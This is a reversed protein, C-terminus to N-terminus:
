LVLVLITFYLFFYSLTIFHFLYKCFSKFLLLNNQIIVCLLYDKFPHFPKVSLHGVIPGNAFLSGNTTGFVKGFPNPGAEFYIPNPLGKSYTTM